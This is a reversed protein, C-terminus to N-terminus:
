PLSILFKKLRATARELSRLSIWEDVTHAQAIDGPGFIVAPTGSQAFIAADSFYAVGSLERQGISEIFRKVFPTKSNTEMPWCPATKQDLVQARLKSARLLTTIERKVSANTEGPITRRDVSIECEDPVINPQSGGRITGVNVTPWGLLPHKRRALRAAYQREIVDVVRAMEHIANVGLHPRSGHAAKGRTRITLWVDGKHATVVRVKTPEGVIALDGRLGQATLARSGSQGNEEDILCALVIETNQPRSSNSAVSALATFMAAISGKTDCAGRGFLRDGKTVPVFNEAPVTDMHPALIVRHRVPGSPSLRILVNSRSPSVERQEVDLRATAAISTLFDAVTKEGSNPDNLPVFAPNVSPLAILERLLIETPTM